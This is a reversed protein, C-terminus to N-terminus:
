NEGVDPGRWIRSPWNKATWVTTSNVKKVCHRDSWANGDAHWLCLGREENTMQFKPYSDQIVKSKYGNGIIPYLNRWNFEQIQKHFAFRRRFETRVNGSGRATKAPITATKKSEYSSSLWFKRSWAWMENAQLVQLNKQMRASKMIGDWVRLM